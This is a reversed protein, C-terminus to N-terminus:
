VVEIDSIADSLNNLIVNRVYMPNGTHDPDDISIQIFDKDAKNIKSKALHYRMLLDKADNALSQVEDDSLDANPYIKLVYSRVTKEVKNSRSEFLKGIIKENNTM